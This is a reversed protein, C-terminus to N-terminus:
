KSDTQDIPKKKFSILKKIVRVHNSVFIIRGTISTIVLITHQKDSLKKKNLTYYAIISVPIVLNLTLGLLYQHRIKM